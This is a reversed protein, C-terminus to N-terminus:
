HTHAMPSEDRTAGTCRRNRRVWPADRGVVAEGEQRRDHPPDRVRRRGRGPGGRRHDGILGAPRLGPGPLRGAGRPHDAGATRRGSHPDLRLRHATATSAGSRGHPRPARPALEEVACLADAGYLNLSRELVHPDAQAPVAFDWLVLLKVFLRAAQRVLWQRHRVMGGTELVSPVELSTGAKRVPRGGRRFAWASRM